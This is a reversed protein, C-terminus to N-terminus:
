KEELEIELNTLIENINIIRNINIQLKENYNSELSKLYKYIKISNKNAKKIQKLIYKKNM